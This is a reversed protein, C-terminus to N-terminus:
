VTGVNRYLALLIRALLRVGCRPKLRFLKVAGTFIPEIFPDTGIEANNRSLHSHLFLVDFTKM